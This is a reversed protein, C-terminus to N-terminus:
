EDRWKFVSIAAVFVLVGGIGIVAIDLLARSTNQFLMVQNMGDIVYYLPLIYVVKQLFPPFNSVPFFTGSLFMMPFTIINGLIAASEPTRSISGALMGLSVFFFPGLILFPVLGLTFTLHAGFAFVGFAIMIAASLFTLVIYWLAKATLWEGRTLPTLSLQRFLHDKRYTSSIEVLSFMPSTLISFGILGPVLFDIYKYVQSGVQQEQLGVIQTGNSAKLNYYNAVGSIAGAAIGGSAQDQPDTFLTVNTPTHNAYASQFGVPVILGVTHGQQALWTAFGQNAPLSVVDVTVAGTQNLASLFAVSAPSHHDFNETYLTVTSSGTASFILGFLGILIIPFVLAFFLGVRNRIYGRSFVKFDAGIRRPNM